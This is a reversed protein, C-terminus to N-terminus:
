AAKWGGVIRFTIGRLSDFATNFLITVKDGVRCNIKKLLATGMVVERQGATVMRGEVLYDELDTFNLEKNPFLM